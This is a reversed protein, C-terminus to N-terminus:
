LGLCYWTYYNFTNIQQNTAKVSANLDKLLEDKLPNSLKSHADFCHWRENNFFLDKEVYKKNNIANSILTEIAKPHFM